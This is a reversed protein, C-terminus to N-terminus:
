VITTNKKTTKTKHYDIRSIGVWIDWSIESKEVYDEEILYQYEESIKLITWDM